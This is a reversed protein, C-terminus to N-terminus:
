RLGLLKATKAFAEGLAADMTSGLRQYIVLTM